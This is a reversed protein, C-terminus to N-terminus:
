KACSVISRHIEEFKARSIRRLANADSRVNTSEEERYYRNERQTYWTEFHGTRYVLDVGGDPKTVVRHPGYRQTTM